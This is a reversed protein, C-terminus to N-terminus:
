ALAPTRYRALINVVRKTIPGDETGKDGRHKYLNTGVELMGTRVVQPLSELDWEVPSTLVKDNAELYDIVMETARVCLDDLLLDEFDHDVRAYSKLQDITILADM